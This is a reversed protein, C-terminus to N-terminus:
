TARRRRRAERAVRDPIEKNAADIRARGPVEARAGHELDQHNTPHHMSITM